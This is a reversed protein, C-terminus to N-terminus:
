DNADVRAAHQADVRALQTRIERALARAIIANAEGRLHVWNVMLDRNGDLERIVDVLPVQERSAWARLDDM